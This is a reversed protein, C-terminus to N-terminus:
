RTWVSLFIYKEYTLQTTSSAVLLSKYRKKRSQPDRKM